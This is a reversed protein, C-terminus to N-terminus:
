SGSVDRSGRDWELSGRRWEYIFAIALLVLFIGVAGLAHWGFSEIQLAVPILLIVELDFIIFLIAVLYFSIGFRFGRKVDSPLGCEYPAVDRRRTRAGLWANALVLLAGIGAGLGVFVLAPLYHRM